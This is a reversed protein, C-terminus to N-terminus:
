CIPPGGVHCCPAGLRRGGLGWGSGGARNQVEPPRAGRRRAVWRRRRRATGWKPLPHPIFTCVTTGRQAPLCWPPATAGPHLASASSAYPHLPVGAERSGLGRVGAPCSALLLGLEAGQARQPRPRPLVRVQRRLEQLQRQTDVAAREAERLGTQLEGAQKQAAAWAKELVLVKQEREETSRKFSLPPAHTPEPQPTCPNQCGLPSDQHAVPQWRGVQLGLSGFGLRQLCARDPHSEAM